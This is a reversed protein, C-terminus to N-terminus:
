VTPETPWVVSKPDSQLTLDRLAQRYQAFEAKKAASLPSDALQTWDTLRLKNNRQGRLCNWADATPKATVTWVQEAQMADENFTYTPGSIVYCCRCETPQDNEIVPVFRVGPSGAWGLDELQQDTLLDFGSINRWAKPLSTWVEVVTGDHVEAHM